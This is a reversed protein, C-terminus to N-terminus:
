EPSFHSALFNPSKGLPHDVREEFASNSINKFIPVKKSFSRNQVRL